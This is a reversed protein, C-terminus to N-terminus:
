TQIVKALEAFILQEGISETKNKNAFYGYNIIAKQLESKVENKNLEKNKIICFLYYIVRKLMNEAENLQKLESYTNALNNCSIIFIQIFPVQLQICDFYNNNLVEARYLAEKYESLASSFCGEKFLKNAASTKVKWYQEIHKICTESM